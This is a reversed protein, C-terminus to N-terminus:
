PKNQPNRDSRAESVEVSELMPSPQFKANSSLAAQVSPAPMSPVPQAPKATNVQSIGNRIITLVKVLQQELDSLTDLVYRDADETIGEAEQRAAEIINAARSQAAQVLAERDVMQDGRERALQVLRAAEENAQALIRDRQALIRAAKEIEEPISIRMQDILELAREEDILTYKSFPMHKGEDILDELRDVLHQIDM